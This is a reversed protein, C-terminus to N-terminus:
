RRYRKVTNILEDLIKQAEEFEYDDILSEIQSVMSRFEDQYLHIRISQIVEKARSQGQELLNYLETFMPTLVKVDIQVFDKTILPIAESIKEPNLNIISIVSNFFENLAYEFDKILDPLRNVLSKKAANELDKAAVALKDAGLNGAMGKMTHATLIIFEINNKKLSNQIEDALHKYKSYIDNLLKLYLKKNGEIRKLGSMINLGPLTEPLEIDKGRNDKDESVFTEREGPKIWKVLVAFLNKPEIPKTVYDNMGAQLCKDKESKMAHATMAIIPIYKIDSPYNRIKNTATYGDMLPMQIDMLVVDFPRNETYSMKVQEVAEIGNNAITIFFGEIELLERAVQQNIENDEVLLIKAGKIKNFAEIESALSTLTKKKEDSQMGLRITFTFVSGHGESSKVAIEGGMLEVLRKCISLGLGTGGYRRTTSTDAQTFSQFLRSIQEANIGIGTDEVSFQLLVENTDSYTKLIETKILIHGSHTFKVANTALNILIQNLRLPDGILASPVVKGTEILLGLGKEDAKISIVNSVNDLVENLDFDISEIELKGAEIKSFDLIDNILGLLAKASFDIKDLYGKQKEDLITKLALGSLGIIANMPTRIEHSMNALFEGKAQTAREAAEKAIKLEQTRKEVKQELEQNLQELGRVLKANEIYPGLSLGLQRLFDKEAKTYNSGDIKPGFLLICTMKGEFYVPLILAAQQLSNGPVLSIEHELIWSEVQEQSILMHEQEILLILPHINDLCITSICCPDHSEIDNLIQSQDASQDRFFNKQPNICEWGMFQGGSIWLLNSFTTSLEKFFIQTLQKYIEDISKAQSLANSLREFVQQFGAQEDKFFLPLLIGLFRHIIKSSLIVAIIGLWYVFIPLSKNSYIQKFIIAMGWLATLFIIWFAIIRMLQLAEKFNQRFIGYALLLLSLFSFNGLPYLEYGNIAPINGLTLIGSFTLGMFIYFIRHRLWLHKTRRYAQFFIVSSFVISAASFLLMIDFLIAKKAFFGWYYTYTGQFYYDSQTTLSLLFSFGYSCYVLWWRQRNNTVHYVFHLLLAPTFVFFHHDLRNLYLGIDSLTIIGNLLIDTNLFMGFLCFLCFILAEKQNQGLRLALITLFFCSLSSILPPIGYPVIRNFIHEMSFEGIAWWTVSILGLFGAWVFIKVANGVLKKKTYANIRIIDHRFIGYAMILIPVFTFGGPPYFDIGSLAPINGINLIAALIAGSLFYLYQIRKVSDNVSMAAKWLLHSFWFTEICGLLGYLDFLINKRGFFGWSYEYMGQYYFHTQTLPMLLLGAGYFFYVVWWNTKRNLLLYILHAYIGMNNVLFFQDILSIQLAVKENAILMVLTVDLNLFGWLTCLFGFLLTEIKRSGKLFCFSALGICIIFSLIPFVAYPVIRNYLNPHFTGVPALLWLIIAGAGPIWVAISLFKTIYGEKFWSQTTDILRHQLIGYAMLGLPIFGFNGPPYVEIGSLPFVNCITLLANFLLGAIFFNIKRRQELTEVTKRGHWLLTIGYGSILLGFVAIIQLVIGSKCFFGFFYEYTNSFYYNTQTLPLCILMLLYLWREIWRRRNISVIEHFLQVTVPLLFIFFLHDMRSIALATKQNTVITLLTLDLYFLSQLLCYITFLRSERKIAGAKITLSALFLSVLLTLMPPLAYPFFRDFRLYM